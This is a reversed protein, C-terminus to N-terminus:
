SITLARVMATHSGSREFGKLLDLTTELHLKFEERVRQLPFAAEGLAAKDYRLAENLHSFVSLFDRIIGHKKIEDYPRTVRAIAQM